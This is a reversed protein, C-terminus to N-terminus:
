NRKYNFSLTMNIVKTNKPIFGFEALRLWHVTENADVKDLYTNLSQAWLQKDPYTMSHGRTVPNEKTRKVEHPMRQEYNRMMKVRMATDM